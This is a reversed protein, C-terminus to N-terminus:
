VRDAAVGTAAATELLARVEAAVADTAMGTAPAAAAPFTPGAAGAGAAVAWTERSVATLRLATVMLPPQFGARRPMRTMFSPDRHNAASVPVSTCTFEAM